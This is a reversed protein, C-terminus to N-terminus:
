SRWLDGWNQFYEDEDIGLEDIDFGADDDYFQERDEGPAPACMRANTHGVVVACLARAIELARAFDTETFSSQIPPRGHM